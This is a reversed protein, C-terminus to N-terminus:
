LLNSGVLIVFHKMGSFIREARLPLRFAGTVTQHEATTGKAIPFGAVKEAHIFGPFGDFTSNISNEAAPEAYILVNLAPVSLVFYEKGTGLKPAFFMAPARVIPSGALCGATYRFGQM